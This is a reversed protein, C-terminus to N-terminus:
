TDFCGMLIGGSQAVLYLACSFLLVTYIHLYIYIYRQIYRQIQVKATDKLLFLKSKNLKNHLIVSPPGPLTSISYPPPRKLQHWLSTM